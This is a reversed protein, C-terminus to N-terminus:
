VSFMEEYGFASMLALVKPLFQNPEGCEVFKTLGHNYLRLSIM